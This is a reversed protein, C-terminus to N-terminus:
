STAMATLNQIRHYGLDTVHINDNSDVAIASAIAPSGRFKGPGDGEGGWSILTNGKSDFKQIRLTDEDIVYVKDTSDLAIGFPCDFRPVGRMQTRWLKIREIRSGEYEDEDPISEGWAEIFNGNSDFKQIRNNLRDAIYVNDNTDVGIASPTEFKGATEGNGGWCTLANGKSDFKIVLDGPDSCAYFINKNRRGFCIFAMSHINKISIKQIPQIFPFEEYNM